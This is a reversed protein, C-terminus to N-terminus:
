AQTDVEGREDWFRWFAWDLRQALDGITEFAARVYVDDVNAEPDSAEEVLRELEQRAVEPLDKDLRHVYKNRLNRLADLTKWSQKDINLTLGCGRELYLIYRNIYPMRGEPLEVEEGLMSAVEAAVDSFLAETLSFLHSITSSRLAEAFYDRDTRLYEEFFERAEDEYLDADDGTLLESEDVDALTTPRRDSWIWRHEGALYETVFQSGYEFYRQLSSLREAFIWIPELFRDPEFVPEISAADWGYKGDM